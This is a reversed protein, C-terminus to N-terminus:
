DRGKFWLEFEERFTLPILFLNVLLKRERALLALYAVVQQWALKSRHEIVMAAVMGAFRGRAYAKDYETDRLCLTAM